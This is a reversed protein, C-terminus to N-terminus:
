EGKLMGARFSESAPVVAGLETLISEADLAFLLLQEDLFNYSNPLQKWSFNEERLM